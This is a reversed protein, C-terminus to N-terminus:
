TEEMEIHEREEPFMQTGREEPFMQTGREEPFMQTGRTGSFMQADEDGSSRRRVIPRNKTRKQDTVLNIPAKVWGSVCGIKGRNRNPNEGEGTTHKRASFRKRKERHFM